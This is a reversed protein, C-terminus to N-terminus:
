FDFLGNSLEKFIFKNILVTIYKSIHQLPFLYIFLIDAV